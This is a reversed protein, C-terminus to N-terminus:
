LVKRLKDSIRKLDGNNRKKNEEILNDVIELIKDANKRIVDNCGKKQIVKIFKKLLSEYMLFIHHKMLQRTPYDINKNTM